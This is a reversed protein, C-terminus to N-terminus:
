RTGDRRSYTELKCYKRERWWPKVSSTIRMSLSLALAVRLRRTANEPHLWARSGILLRAGQAWSM